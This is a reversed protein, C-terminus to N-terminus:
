IDAVSSSHEVGVVSNQRFIGYAGMWKWGLPVFRRLKDTIPGPVVTPTPGYGDANAYTKALAQRGLFLSRYVDGGAAGAGEFSPATTTTIFRFGEFEGLENNWIQGPQSYVHPDRWAAAGTEERLDLKTDPHIVAMYYGNWKPTNNRELIVHARRVLSATLKSGATVTVRSSGDAYQVNTGVQLANAAILDLSQGANTGVTEAQIQNVPLFSTARLRATTITAKGYEALTLSVQSDTIAEADVDV